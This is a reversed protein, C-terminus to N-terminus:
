LRTQGMSARMYNNLRKLASTSQECLLILRYFFIIMAVAATVPSGQEACKTSSWNMQFSQQMWTKMSTNWKQIVQVGM